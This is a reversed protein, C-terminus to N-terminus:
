KKGVVTDWMAFVDPLATRVILMHEVGPYEKLTADPLAKALALAGALAFDKDGVGIFFPLKAFAAQKVRGGGGGLAAAAAFLGPHEQCLSVAQAAGMSHGVVFVKARDIPYREALKEIITKVPPGGGFSIGSRPSVLLWGRTECEKVVHGAGYGEFFLNESGGAGHLAVVLPVPKKPDLGKPVFLRVPQTKKKDLPITIRHDGSHNHTYFRVPKENAKPRLILTDATISVFGYKQFEKSYQESGVSFDTEPVIGEACESLSELRDRFTVLEWGNELGSLDIDDKKVDQYPWAAQEAKLWEVLNEIKGISQVQRVILKDNLKADLWLKQDSSLIALWSFPVKVKVPLKELPVSVTDGGLTLTVNAGAPVEAKVKYFARVEVTLEQTKADVLRKEPVAYLSELWQEAVPPEDKGALQWRARDLTRGADGFRLSFFMPTIDPLLAIARKRAVADTQKEWAAEFRKLRQGLEYREAQAVAPSVLALLLIL